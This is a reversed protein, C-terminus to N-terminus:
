PQKVLTELNIAVPVTLDEYTGDLKALPPTIVVESLSYLLLLHLVFSLILSLIVYKSIKM